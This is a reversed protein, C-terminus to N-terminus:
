PSKRTLHRLSLDLNSEPYIALQLARDRKVFLQDDERIVTLVDEVHSSAADLM